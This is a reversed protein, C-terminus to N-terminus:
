IQFYNKIHFCEIKFLPLLVHICSSNENSDHMVSQEQKSIFELPMTLFTYHEIALNCFLGYFTVIM